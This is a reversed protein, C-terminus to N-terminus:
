SEYRKWGKQGPANVVISNRTSTIEKGCRDVYAEQGWVKYQFFGYKFSTMKGAPVTFEMPRTKSWSLSEQVTIGAARRLLHKIRAKPTNGEGGWSWTASLTGTATSQEQVEFSTSGQRNDYVDSSFVAKFKKQKGWITFKWHGESECAPRAQFRRTPTWSTAIPDYDPYDNNPEIRQENPHADLRVFASVNKVTYKPSAASVGPTPIGGNSSAAAATLSATRVGVGVLAGSISWVTVMLALARRLSRM